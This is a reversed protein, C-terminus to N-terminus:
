KGANGPTIQDFHALLNPYDAATTAATGFFKNGIAVLVRKTVSAANGTLDYATAAYRHRGNSANTVPVSLVYPPSKATGIVVGDRSFEVKAVASNDTADATLVLSGNATFFDSNTALKVIPATQDCNVGGSSIINAKLTTYVGSFKLHFRYARGSLVDPDDAADGDLDDASEASGVTSLLYGGEVAKFTGHGVHTLQAAGSNVLVTFGSTALRGGRNTIKITASFGKKSAKKVEVCLSYGCNAAEVAQATVGVSREPETSTSCGLLTLPTLFLVSTANLGLGLRRARTREENRNAM